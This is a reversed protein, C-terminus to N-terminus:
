GATINPGGDLGTLERSVTYAVLLVHSSRGATKLFSALLATRLRTSVRTGLGPLVRRRTM